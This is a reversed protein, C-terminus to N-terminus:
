EINQVQERIKEVESKLNIVIKSLAPFNAKGGMTNAERAMEQSLFDLKRGIAGDQEMIERFQVIHSKMRTIEESIDSKDTFHAVENLFRAEDIAIGELAEEMRKKLKTRHNEVAEPALEEVQGLIETIKVLREEFDGKLAEGERKRMALFQELAIMAAAELGGWLGEVEDDGIERDIEIVDPFKAVLNLLTGDPPTIGFDEMLAQLAQYYAKAATKNYIIKNGEISQNDFNIYVDVRGRAIKASLLKRVREEFPNFLRPSRLNFESYKNNVSKIEVSFKRGEDEHVGKGYGTMSRLM